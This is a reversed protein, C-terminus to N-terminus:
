PKQRCNLAVQTQRVLERRSASQDLSRRCAKTASGLGRHALSYDPCPKFRRSGQTNYIFGCKQLSDLLDDLERQQVAAAFSECDGQKLDALGSLLALVATSTKTCDIQWHLEIAKGSEVFRENALDEDSASSQLPLLLCALLFLGKISKNKTM